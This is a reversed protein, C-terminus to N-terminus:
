GAIAQVCGSLSLSPQQGPRPQRSTKPCPATTGTSGNRRRHLRKRSTPAQMRVLQTQGLVAGCGCRRQEQEM